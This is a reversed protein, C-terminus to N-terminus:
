HIGGTYKVALKDVAAIIACAKKGMEKARYYEGFVRYEKASFVGSKGTFLGRM